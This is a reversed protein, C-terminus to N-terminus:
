PPWIPVDSQVARGILSSHEVQKARLRLGTQFTNLPFNHCSRWNNIITLAEDYKQYCDLPWPDGSFDPHKDAAALILGASDVLERPYQLVSWAMNENCSLDETEATDRCFDEIQTLYM